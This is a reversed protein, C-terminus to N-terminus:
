TAAKRAKRAKKKPQPKPQPAAHEAVKDVAAVPSIGWRQALAGISVAGGTAALESSRAILDAAIALDPWPRPANATVQRWTQWDVSIKSM